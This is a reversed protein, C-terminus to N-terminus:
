TVCSDHTRTCSSLTHQKFYEWIFIAGTVHVNLSRVMGHQPVEVCIDLLPLLNAPIGGKENNESPVGHKRTLCRNATQEAGVVKYGNRKMNKLYEPLLHPKVELINIWKEATVSLSQFQKDEIYKLSGIVYEDVGFVECTRSLGGLNPLKDILSAVVVLGGSLTRNARPTFQSTNYQSVMSRWPIIKKQVNDHVTKICDEEEDLGRLMQDKNELPVAMLSPLHAKSKFISLPIWEEKTINALRPLDTFITQLSFHQVPHFVSFYFDETLKAVNKLANSQQLSVNLSTQVAQYKEILQNYGKVECLKLLNQLAVQAYLRINFNQGMTWPLIEQLSRDLFSEQDHSLIRVLQYVVSIFSCLSGVRKEAAQSFVDWITSRLKTHRHLIRVLLWEQQYRVSPQHSDGLLSDCLWTKLKTCEDVTLSPELILVSQLVRHKLRHLYSDGFYRSRRASASKDKEVLREVIQVVMQHCTLSCTMDLLLGIGVARVENDIHSNSQDRRHVPGFTVAEVIIELFPELIHIGSKIVERNLQNVLVNPLGAVSDGHSFIDNAYQKLCPKLTENIMSDKQFAMWVFARITKWFMETKRMEFILKWSLTMFKSVLQLSDTTVIHPMIYKMVEMVSVLAGAGSIELAVLAENLIYEIDALIALRTGTEHYMDLYLAFMSWSNQICESTVHGWLNHLDRTLITDTDERALVHNINKNIIINEVLIKQKAIVQDLSSVKSNKRVIKSIWALISCSFYTRIPHVVREGLYIDLSKKQLNELHHVIISVLRLHKSFTDLSSMYFHIADYDRLHSASELKRMMFVMIGNISAEIISLIMEKTHDDSTNQFSDSEQLINVLIKFANEQTDESSYLRKDCNQFCDVLKFLYIELAKNDGQKTIPILEADWLLLMIRALVTTSITMSNGPETKMAHSSYVSVFNEAIEKSVFSSLWSVTTQWLYTGRKLSESSSFAGLVNAVNFITVCKTDALNILAKLLLCQVAGRIYIHQTSLSDKIFEVLIHLEEEGWVRTGEISALASSVYFLPVPGWSIKCIVRLLESFFFVSRDHSSKIVSSLIRMLASELESASNDKENRVYLVSNNLANLFTSLFTNVDNALLFDADLHSLSVIGWKVVSINDHNLIRHYVCMAWFSHLMTGYPSNVSTTEILKQVLPLVPRVLHTQKEELSEIILFFVGWIKSLDHSFKSDWWFVASTDAFTLVYDSHMLNEIGRKMLYLAQKRVMPDHHVQGHKILEWFTSEKALELVIDTDSIKCPLYFDSLVSIVFYAHSLVEFENKDIKYPTILSKWLKRLLKDDGYYTILKPVTFIFTNLAIQEQNSSILKLILEHTPVDDFLKLLALHLQVSDESTNRSKTEKLGIAADLISEFIKLFVLTKNLNEALKNSKDSIVFSDFITQLYGKYEKAINPVLLSFTKCDLLMLSLSLVNCLLAILSEDNCQDVQKLLKLCIHVINECYTVPKDCTQDQGQHLKLKFKLLLYLNQLKLILTEKPLEDLQDLRNLTQILNEFLENSCSLLGDSGLQLLIDIADNSYPIFCTNYVSM